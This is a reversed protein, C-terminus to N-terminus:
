YLFNSNRTNLRVTTYRFRMLYAEISVYIWRRRRMGRGSEVGGGILQLIEMKHMM